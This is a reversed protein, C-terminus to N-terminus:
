SKETKLEFIRIPRERTPVKVEVRSLSWERPTIWEVFLDGTQRGPEGLFVTGAKALHHRWFSELFPWQTKDYLIDAGLIIDFQEDLQDKQWDLQRTRSGYRLTNLHAFLLAPAELDALVVDAGVAAAAAGSLGMGCGLDLVRHKTLGWSTSRAVVREAVGYASDWLEAWYPLHEVEDDRVGTEKERRDIESAVMDLVDDANKVRTFPLRLPGIPIIEDVTEYAQHIRSLLQQRQRDLQDHSLNV